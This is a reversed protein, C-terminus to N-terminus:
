QKRRQREMGIKPGSVSAEHERAGAGVAEPAESPVLVVFDVPGAVVVVATHLDVVIDLPRSSKKGRVPSSKLKNDAKGLKERHSIRPPILSHRYM